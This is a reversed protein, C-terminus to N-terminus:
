CSIPYFTTYTAYQGALLEPRWPAPGVRWHLHSASARLQDDYRAHDGRPQQCRGERCGHTVCLGHHLAGEMTGRLPSGIMCVAVKKHRKGMGEPCFWGKGGRAFVRTSGHHTISSHGRLARLPSLEHM